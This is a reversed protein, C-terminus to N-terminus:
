ELWKRKGDMKLTVDLEVGGKLWLPDLWSGHIYSSLSISVDQDNIDDKMSTAKVDDDECVVIWQRWIWKTMAKDSIVVVMATMMM